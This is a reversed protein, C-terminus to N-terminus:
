DHCTPDLERVLSQVGPGGAHPAHLRLRQVMLSTGTASNKVTWVPFGLSVTEIGPNCPLGSCYEQKSFGISLPSQSALSKAWLTALLQIRSFHSLAWVCVCVHVCVCM